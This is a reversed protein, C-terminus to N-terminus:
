TKRVFPSYERIFAKDDDTLPYNMEDLLPNIISRLAKINNQKIPTTMNNLADAWM